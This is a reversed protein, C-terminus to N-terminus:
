CERIDWVSALVLIRSRNSDKLISALFDSNNRLWTLFIEMELISLSPLSSLSYSTAEIMSSFSSFFRSLIDESVFFDLPIGVQSTGHSPIVYGM